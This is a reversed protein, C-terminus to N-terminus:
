DGKMDGKGKFNRANIDLGKEILLRLLHHITENSFNQHCKPFFNPFTSPKEMKELNFHIGWDNKALCHFITSGDRTIM